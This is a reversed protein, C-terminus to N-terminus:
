NFRKQNNYSIFEIAPFSFNLQDHSGCRNSFGSVMDEPRTVVYSDVALVWPFSTIDNFCGVFM